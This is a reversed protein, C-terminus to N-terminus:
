PPGKLASPSYTSTIFTVDNLGKGSDRHYTREVEPMPAFNFRLGVHSTM